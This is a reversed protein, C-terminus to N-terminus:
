YIIQDKNPLRDYIAQVIELEEYDFWVRACWGCEDIEVPAYHSFLRRRMKKFCSPCNIVLPTKIERIRKFREKKEALAAQAQSIIDQSFERDERILVKNLEGRTLLLGKCLYCKYVDAGEYKIVDLGHYCHPCSYHSHLKDQHPRFLPILRSDEYAKKAQISGHRRILHDPRLWGLTALEVFFFPGQWKKDEFVFWGQQNNLLKGKKRNIKFNKRAAKIEPKLNNVMSTLASKDAHAMNLLIDIREEIPPHTSFGSLRSHVPDVIFLSSLGVIRTNEGHWRKSIVYLSQALALPNRTLKVAVADARFEKQKSISSVVLRNLFHTFLLILYILIGLVAASSRVRLVSERIGVMLAEYIGFVSCATTVIQTDGRAIHAAEHGVVAELQSRNLRSLLGETVGIYASGGSDGISFANCSASNVVCGGLRVGGMAVSVEEIINQFMRHKSYNLDLPKVGLAEFAKLMMNSTSIFFHTLAASLAIFFVIGTEALSPFSLGTQAESYFRYRFYNKVFFWVTWSTFFYIAILTAILIFIFRSKEKEIQVFSYAM